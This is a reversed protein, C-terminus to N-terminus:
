GCRTSTMRTKARYRSSAPTPWSQSVSRRPGGGTAPMVYIDLNGDYEGTFAIQKGDPSFLPDTELGTGTTLRKAEGGQRSVLWLDGAYVFAIHTQSVTPKQLLLPKKEEAL